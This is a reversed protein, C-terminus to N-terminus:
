KAMCPRVTFCDQGAEELKEWRASQAARRCIAPVSRPKMQWFSM